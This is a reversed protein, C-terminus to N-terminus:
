VSTYPAVVYYDGEKKYEVILAKATKPVTIHERTKANLLYSDGEWRLEVQGLKDDTCPITVQAVHGVLDEKSIGEDDLKKFVGVLPATIVKSVLLSVIMNPVLFVFAVWTTNIGLYHNMNISLLWMPLTWASIFVMFPVKGLNFFSLFMNFWGGGIEADAEVETSVDVDIEVDTEFDADLDFDLFGMDLAGLIVALWYLIVILLLFTPIINVWSFAANILETM